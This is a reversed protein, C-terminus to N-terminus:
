NCHIKMLHIDPSSYLSHQEAPPILEIKFKETLEELFKEWVTVQKPTDRKEQSLIAYTGDKVLKQLTNLLPQISEDYYVCDTLLIIDPQFNLSIDKGWELIHAKASGKFKKWQNENAKVNKELMSLASELDTLVVDAGLCAATLGACGLGAGLELVKKGRLWKTKHSTIDLYKALVIAADWVVCSVDGVNKQSFTLITDQSELELERIFIDKDSDM